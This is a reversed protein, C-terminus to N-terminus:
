GQAWTWATIRWGSQGKRLVLTVVSGTEKEPKGKVKYTFSEVPIVVYARDGTVDTHRPTGLHVVGDTIQNKKADAQYANWWRTCAGSGHWEHPAIDDIISAQDACQGIMAQMDAKNFGDVWQQVVAMVDTKESATTPGGVLMAIALAMLMKNM